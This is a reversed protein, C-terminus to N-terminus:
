PCHHPRVDPFTGFETTKVMGTTMPGDGAATM